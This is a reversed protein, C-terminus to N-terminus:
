ARRNAELVRESKESGTTESEERAVTAPTESTKLIHYSPRNMTQSHIRAIYEGIIGLSFLQAGSFIAIAAALFPFGPVETGGEYIYRGIVYVLVGLGFVTLVFGSISAIQLPLTSFGTIMNVAHTILKFLTYNSKGITRPEHRTFIWAFRTTAWTLLVDISIFSGNYDAFGERLYTRFARFASVRRAVEAGMGSQLVIKTMQSALDRLLGHHEKEPAGYVVDFGEGLKELLKPIEEPPHQLDDDMTVIIDGRAARIGCLLANHQGYNRMLSFGRVWPYKEALRLIEQWSADRSGDNVLIVEFAAAVRPLVEDLKEALSPLIEASNYVPIVISISPNSAARAASPEPPAAKQNEM